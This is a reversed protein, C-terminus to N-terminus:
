ASPPTKVEVLINVSVVVVEIVAVAQGPPDAKDDAVQGVPDRVAIAPSWDALEASAKADHGLQEVFCSVTPTPIPTGRAEARRQERKRRKQRFFRSM